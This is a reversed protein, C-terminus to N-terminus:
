IGARKWERETKKRQIRALEEAPDLCNKLSLLSYWVISYRVSDKGTKAFPTVGHWLNQAEFLAMSGHAVEFAIRLEPLVLYGGEIGKKITLQTNWTNRVNGTDIHGGLVSDKNVIGGTYVGCILQKDDITNDVREKHVRWVEPVLEAYLESASKGMDCLTDHLSPFTRAM